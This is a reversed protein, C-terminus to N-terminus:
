QPRNTKSPMDSNCCFRLWLWGMIGALLSAVLIGSKAAILQDQQAFGLDAIFISMTFGMGGLMGIGVIHRLDLGDPLRGLRFKIAIWAMLPIGISKGVVLGLVIGSTIGGDWLYELTNYSLPIGANVLAFLPLVFLAVPHELAREWRRLPTTAKAAAVQVGEVIDHQDINELINESSDSQREMREFRSMLRHTKQLFWGTDRKPRAPVTFAVMIGAVTAHVGSMYLMSWLIVGGALYIWSNRIGLLNVLLLLVFALAGSALYLVDISETYFFAIVLIAGIDDIIALATLFAFASAPIQRRLLALIGVAFATDTAMPIGWGHETESGFNLLLFLLAPFLMGGIAAAIVPLTRSFDQLEGALLERKIELGLLFFFLTMIADNVWHHLSLSFSHDDVVLGLPTEIFSQYSTSFQSNALFLAIGTCLILLISSTTQDKIFYQFPTIVKEFQRELDTQVTSRHASQKDM